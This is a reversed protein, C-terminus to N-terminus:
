LINILLYDVVFEEDIKGVVIGRQCRYCIRMIHHLEDISYRNLHKKANMIQWGTLGTASSVDKSNCSQVQLVAKANNYLVSLIVMTAEGVAECQKKLKWTLELNRDLIADIFDFIADKPPQYITGDDLLSEFAISWRSKDFKQAQESLNFGGDVYQKVKDIELLCRGYDYECVEMLRDCNKDSLNIEKQIYKKLVAPKLPEFEIIKDKYRKYFKTRKDVDSVLLILTNDGVVQEIKDQLDENTMLDKDDRIVYVYNKVVFSRNSLKSYIDGIADIRKVEKNLVKGIQSIYLEQVKWEVGTFILFNSLRNSQIQAKLASVDM